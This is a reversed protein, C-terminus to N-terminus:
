PKLYSLQPNDLLIPTLLPIIVQKFSLLKYYRIVKLTQLWAIHFYTGNLSIPFSKLIFMWLTM